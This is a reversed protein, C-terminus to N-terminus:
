FSTQRRCDHGQDNGLEEEIKPLIITIRTGQGEQSAVHFSGADGFYLAIREKVNSLGFHDKLKIVKGENVKRCLEESMGIGNDQIVIQIQEEVAKVEINLQGLTDRPKLGHYIANEVLPQLTLKMIAYKLVEEDVNFHYEFVDSYKLMQIYLYDELASLEEGITIIQRGNSLTRKYFDALAKTANLSEKKMNMECLMYIVNLTNYLFHPKIQQQILALEYERKIKEKEEVQLLLNKIKVAMKNFTSLFMGIEDSGEVDFHVNFDGEGIRKMKERAKNVPHAIAYSLLKAGFVQVIISVLVTLAILMTIRSLDKALLNLNVSGILHWSNFGLPIKVILHKLGHINTIMPKYSTGTMARINAYPSRQYLKEDDRASIIRDGDVLTYEIGQDDFISSFSNESVNVLLYGLTKGNKINIVKKALTLINSKHAPLKEDPYYISLWLSQGGSSEFVKRTKLDHFAKNGYSLLQSDTAYAKEKTDMFIISDVQSFILKANYLERNIALDKYFENENSSYKEITNNLNVVLMNSCDNTANFIEEMRRIILKSNDVVNKFSSEEIRKKYTFSFIAAVILLPIISLPLYIHTIKKTIPYSKFKEGLM